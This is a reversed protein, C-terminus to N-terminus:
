YILSTFLNFPTIDLLYLTLNFSNDNEKTTQNEKKPSHESDRNETKLTSSENTTLDKFKSDQVFTLKHGGTSLRKLMSLGWHLM